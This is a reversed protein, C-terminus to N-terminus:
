LDSNGSFICTGDDGEEKRYREFFRRIPEWIGKKEAVSMTEEQVNEMQEEYKVVPIVEEELVEDMIKEISYNEEMSSKHLTYALHIGEKDRYDVERVFFETLKHFEEAPELKCPPYYCFFYKDGECFIYEPSLLIGIPELMFKQIERLLELLARILREIDENSMKIKEHKTQLSIKGSIDYRYLSKDDIYKTTAKLLGSIENEKLMFTQFDDEITSEGELILLAQKLNNKVYTNM